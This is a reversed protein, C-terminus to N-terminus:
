RIRWIEVGENNYIMKFVDPNNKLLYLLGENNRSWVLGNKMEPTILIYSIKFESFITIAM